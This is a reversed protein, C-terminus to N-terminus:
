RRRNVWQVEGTTYKKNKEKLFFFFFVGENRQVGARFWVTNGKRSECIYIYLLAFVRFSSCM